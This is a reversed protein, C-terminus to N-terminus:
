LIARLYFRPGSAVFHATDQLIEDRGRECDFFRGVLAAENPFRLEPLGRTAPSGRSLTGVVWNQVYRSAGVHVREALPAHLAWSRRAASDPLDAHFMLRGLLTIAEAEDGVPEREFMTRVEVCYAHLAELGRMTSWDEPISEGEVMGVAHYEGASAEPDPDTPPRYPLGAPPPIVSFLRSRSSARLTRWEVEVPDAFRMLAIVRRM